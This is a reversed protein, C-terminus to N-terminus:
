IGTSYAFEESVDYVVTEGTILKAKKITVFYYDFGESVEYAGPNIRGNDMVVNICKKGNPERRSKCWQSMGVVEVGNLTVTM